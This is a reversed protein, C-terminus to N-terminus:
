PLNGVLTSTQLGVREGNRALELRVSVVGFETQAPSSYGFSCAAVRTAIVDGLTTCATPYAAVFGYARRRLLRGTGNGQADVGAGVCSYTVAQDTNGVVYFRGGSYGSPFQRAGFSIRQTGFAANPSNAVTTIRTRNATASYADNANLNGVVLWDNRAAAGNLPGLVDFATSSTSPDVFAACTSATCTAADAGPAPGMRYRGGGRTPLLEICQDNLTPRRIANPVAAGIDRAMVQLASQTAGQLLVRGRQALFSDVAPRVVVVLAGAMAGTIVIVLVLEVLTFGRQARRM